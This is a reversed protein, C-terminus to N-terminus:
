ITPLTCPSLLCLLVSEIGHNGNIISNVKTLALICVFPRSIVLERCHLSWKIKYWVAAPSNSFSKIKLISQFSKRESIKEPFNWIEYGHTTPTTLLFIQTVDVCRAHSTGDIGQSRSGSGAPQKSAKEPLFIGLIVRFGSNQDSIPQFRSVVGEPM